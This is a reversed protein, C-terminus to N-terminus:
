KELKRLETILQDIHSTHIVDIGAYLIPNTMDIELVKSEVPIRNMYARNMSCIRGDFFKIGAIAAFVEETQQIGFEHIIQRMTEKPKQESTEDYIQVIRKWAKAIENANM